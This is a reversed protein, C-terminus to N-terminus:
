SAVKTKIYLKKLAHSLKAQLPDFRLIHATHTNPPRILM